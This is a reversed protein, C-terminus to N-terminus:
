SMPTTGFIKRDLNLRGKRREGSLLERLVQDTTDPSVFFDPNNKKLHTKNKNQKQLSTCKKM